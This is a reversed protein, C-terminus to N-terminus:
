REDGVPHCQTAAQYRIRALHFDREADVASAELRLRQDRARLVSTLDYQGREYAKQFSDAQQVALPLLKERTERVIAATAEMERRATGAESDIQIALAETELRARDAAAMKEAIEGQNKNWIPLPVTLHLGFYGTHQRQTPTVDQMEQAGFLGATVDSLRKARALQQDTQASEVKNQALQYDPRGKWASANPLKLLSLDGTISLSENACLGVLPRLQGLVSISEAELQRSEVRLKQTELQVQLADLSSSEGAKVRAATFDALKTALELQKRRLQRQESLALLRVAQGRAEAILRREADKVELEAAAVLQSSLRKELSLRRTLPFSQDLSYLGTQPSVRSQNQFSYDFSPNSLRGSGLQRGRAEAVALRAAKLSPHHVRVRDAIEDLSLSIAMAPGACANLILFFFFTKM